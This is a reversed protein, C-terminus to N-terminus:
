FVTGESLYTKFLLLSKESFNHLKVRLKHLLIEHDVLDFAKKLDVFVSGIVKGSDIDNLWEDVLRILATQCSHKERFGSQLTELVNFKSLFSNLQNALHREFVKSLTPLVSIPQYNNPDEKSSGKHLSLVYAQKLARQFIGKAISNNMISTIPLVIYDQCHKLVDASIEDIGTAKCTDLNKIIESVEFPTIFQVDFVHSKLKNQLYSLM